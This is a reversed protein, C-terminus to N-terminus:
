NLLLNFLEKWNSAYPQEPKIKPISHFSRQNNDLCEKMKAKLDAVSTTQFFATRSSGASTERAYPEQAIIMSKGYEKYESIPLGWSEIRSAFILCHSSRYYNYLEQKSVWGMFKLSKVYGWQQHIWNSYKNENGNITLIVEFKNNGYEKELEQAAQCVTEFNKQIGPASAYIFRYYSLAQSEEIRDQHKASYPPAVIIKEKKLKFKSAFANRMLDQQVIIYKNRHINIRYFLNTLNVFLIIPKYFLFDQWTYKFFPFANHCYVAQNKAHVRPTTDHLSLWFDIPGIEKSIKYFTFYECWLRKIWATKPWSMEIYEINPYYCLEKHHVIAIVRIQENDAIHSLEKMCEQLISLTGGTILNVASVVVTKM